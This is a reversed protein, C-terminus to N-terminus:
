NQLDDLTRLIPETLTLNPGPIIRRQDRDYDLVDIANLKPLHSHELQIALQRRSHPSNPGLRDSRELHALLEEVGIATEDTRILYRCVEPRPRRAVTRM